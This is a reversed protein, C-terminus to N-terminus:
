REEAAEDCSDIAQLVLHDRDLLLALRDAPTVPSFSADLGLELAEEKLLTACFAHFTSVWLEEYPSDLLTELRERLEGAAASSFTLALVADPSVGEETLWLFRHILTRTKGTGAGAVILLPGGPHTVAALQSENLGDLPNPM